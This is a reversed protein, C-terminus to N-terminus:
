GRISEEAVPGRDHRPLRTLRLYRLGASFCRVRACFTCKTEVIGTKHTLRGSHTGSHVQENGKTLGLVRALFGLCCHIKQMDNGFWPWKKRGVGEHSGGPREAREIAHQLNPKLNILAYVHGLHTFCCFCGASVLSGGALIGSIM